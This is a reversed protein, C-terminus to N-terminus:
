APHRTVVESTVSPETRLPWHQGEEVVRFPHLGRAHDPCGHQRTNLAERPAVAQKARDPMSNM